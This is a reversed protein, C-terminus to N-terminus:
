ESFGIDLHNSQILHVVKVSAPDVPKHVRPGTVGGREQQQTAPAGVQVNRSGAAGSGHDAVGAGYVKRWEMEEGGISAISIAVVAASLARLM